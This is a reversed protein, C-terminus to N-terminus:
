ELEARRKKCAPCWHVRRAPFARYGQEVALKNAAKIADHIQAAAHVSVGAEWQGCGDCHVDVAISYSM